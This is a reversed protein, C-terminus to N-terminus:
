VALEACGSQKRVGRVGVGAIEDVRRDHVHQDAPDVVVRGAGDAHARVLRAFPAFCTAAVKSQRSLDFPRKSRAMAREVQRARRLMPFSPEKPTRFGSHLADRQDVVIVAEREVEDVVKALQARVHRHPAVVFDRDCIREGVLGVGDDERRPGAGRVFRADTEIENARRAFRRWHKPDAKAMLRDSLRKAAIDHARWRGICPLTERMECLARPSKRPRFPGKEAM